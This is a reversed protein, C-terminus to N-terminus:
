ACDYVLSVISLGLQHHLYALLRVRGRSRTEGENDLGSVKRPRPSRVLACAFKLLPTADTHFQVQGAQRSLASKTAPFLGLEAPCTRSSRRSSPKTFRSRM